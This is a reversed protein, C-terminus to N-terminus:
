GSLADLNHEIDAVARDFEQAALDADAPPESDALEVAPGIEPVPFVKPEDENDLSDADAVDLQTGPGLVISHQTVTGDEERVPIDVTVNPESQAVSTVYDLLAQAVADGTVITGGAYSITKM